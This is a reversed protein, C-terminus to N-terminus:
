RKGKLANLHEVTRAANDAHMHGRFVGGTSGQMPDLPMQSQENTGDMPGGPEANKRDANSLAAAVAVKQTHGARVMEEINHSVVERSSGPELPMPNAKSRRQASDLGGTM